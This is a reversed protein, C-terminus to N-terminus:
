HSLRVWLPGYTRAMSGVGDASHTMPADAFGVGIIADDLLMVDHLNYHRAADGLMVMRQKAASGDPALWVFVPSAGRSISM